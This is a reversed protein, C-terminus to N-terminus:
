RPPTTSLDPPTQLRRREHDAGSPAHRVVLVEHEQNPNDFPVNSVIRYRLDQAPLENLPAGDLLQRTLRAVDHGAEHVHQMMAALAPWDGQATLRPDLQQALPAWRQAPPQDGAAALRTRVDSTAHLRVAATKRPDRNFAEAAQRLRYRALEPPVVLRQAVADIGHDWQAPPQAALVAAAADLAEAAPLNDLREAILTNALPGAADLAGRLAAPGRRALLDAPDERHPLQAHRPELGHQTLLWYDREAAVQGALDPDTAVIPDRGIRALQTAQDETLGTGLPAVGFHTGGAALTVAWADLPGEVLVPVAGTDVLDPLVGFLQDGKHFLPTNPTNLYKPGAGQDDRLDPRRRGVFGLVDGRHVIPLIARDRFRDILRGTSAVTAVGTETMEQHTVGARRLHTVLNTWGAPAYGPAIHPHGAVDQGLRDALYARAWGRDYQSQFYALTLQNVEVMRERSVHALDLDAARLIRRTVEADTPELPGMVNRHAAAITLADDDDLALEDVLDPADLPSADAWGAPNHGVSASSPLQEDDDPPLEHFPNAEHEQAWDGDVAEATPPDTLMSIRWVTALCEDVDNSAQAAKGLLDELRWGRQQAHDVATVLTPWWSSARMAGARGTGVIQVLRPQWPSTLHAHELGAAVAPSLHGQIRWWLAAAAHDDPLAKDSPAGDGLARRLIGQADLGTRSIAALQEALQPTFPDRGAAPAATHLLPGWEAMAPSRDGAAQRDLARQWRAAATSPQPPGTPRRDTAAVQMAARWVAIDALLEPTLRAGNRAWDPLLGPHASGDAVNDTAVRDRVQGALDAVLDARATLYRGWTPHEALAAPVAPIWPLPGPGANRLGSDDLRWGLVAARDAATDLEGQAAARALAAAPDAGTAGLLLLHARLTPWAADQTLEAAVRTAATELAAVAEVGAVNEAAFSLGDLYRASAQGLLAAPDHQERRLTTASVASADRALVTELLDTATPPSINDPRIVNHPDGDGVVQLYVHNAHRGRTLMTYLQQRSEQGTALGHMVDVSVGQAGHVTTAYGLEVSEAVYAAPLTVRRGTRTHAATLDGKDGIDLVLWRDGNKVWDSGSIRLSRQNARTIVLEGVSARNGDALRVTGGASAGPAGDLRHDRARRNLEAALERTPALMVADRGNARDGLWADFVDATLTDLDGVHVRGHDLYFGLAEPRGDRLALTAAAEAPDTFRLLESLRTAGHTAALDRLVGGAGIAALQQDDGVLRVSGGRAIVFQVATDLSLTDAMGAEDILVLTSPGIRKAWNPLDGTQISWVLKALTDTRTDTQTRLMEAAAASPALGVVDGGGEIWAAALARMATTKGAGAPAIALQLRAGSTALDRVLGAQGPNLAAGNATAELLALEVAAATATRGDRRGATAVLRREAALVRASTYQDAGVVTYVSSGDRRRLAPPETIADTPRALSVSGVALAEDVLLDVVPGIQTPQLDAARVQRLAEAHVHWVQWTSRRAEVATVVRGAAAALWATDVVGTDVVAGGPQGPGHAPAPALTARVMAAIQEPGGLVETAQARWAARQEALSRPEHKAERTELTAQQALAISEVPTPPRGHTRQFETALKGRRTQISARRASWRENLRSDVGVIERVPRKRPDTGPRQAFRVGLEANLHRELATNYTESAAVGAKFLTRGDISLWKGGRGDPGSGPLTQVKNAVAVHTHLDPDGARSDRHTFAAAVLGTVEVQRVGRNGERTFLARTELFRLADAVAAQHAREVAAAVPPSGLAWLTSVSKVPSFTLDYGAVATTRPRSHKAITAAVERAGEPDRGYEARFWEVAVETRVRARDTAPVPWDGPLGAAENVAAIRKAVEVRFGSVDGAYVRYPVGLRTVARYDGESLGPGHLSARRQQALPHHGSGFLAQMEEASVVDGAALGDIGSLGSGVWRGPAEGKATYYDALGVHGKETADLAAVQRTLYDYGSGATLKHLSM